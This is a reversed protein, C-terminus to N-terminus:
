STHWLWYPFKFYKIYELTIVQIDSPFYCESMFNKRGQLFHTYCTFIFTHLMRCWFLSFLLFTLFRSAPSSNSRLLIWPSLAWLKRPLYLPVKFIQQFMKFTRSWMCVSNVSSCWFSLGAAHFLFLINCITCPLNYGPLLAFIFDLQLYM